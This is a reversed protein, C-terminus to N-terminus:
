LLIRRGTEFLHEIAAQQEKRGILANKLQEELTVVKKALGDREESLQDIKKQLDSVQFELKAANHELAEEKTKGGRADQGIQKIDNKYRAKIHKNKYLLQRDEARGFAEVAVDKATAPFRKNNVKLDEVYAEYWLLFVRSMDSPSLNLRAIHERDHPKISKLLKLNTPM